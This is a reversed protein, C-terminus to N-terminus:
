ARRRRRPMREAEEYVRVESVATTEVAELYVSVIDTNDSRLAEYYRQRDISHIIALPYGAQKLLLNAAIRATRGSRKAWPFIRMLRFHTKAAREIPHLHRTTPDELWEGFKRMRYSIKEPPSIEHYYLRHLPNDKRYPCGKAKEEPNLIGCIDRLTELKLLKRKNGAFGTAFECAENFHKIVEYSPILSTDSIITPDIAAKIESHTLVEGELAADHYILSIQLRSRFEQQVEEPIETTCERWLAVAEDVEVFRGEVDEKEKYRLL